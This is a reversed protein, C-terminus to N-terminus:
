RKLLYWLAYGIASASLALVEVLLFVIGSDHDYNFFLAAFGLLIAFSIALGLLLVIMSAATGGHTTYRTMRLAIVLPIFGLVGAVFGLLIALVM